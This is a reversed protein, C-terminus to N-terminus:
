QQCGIKQMKGQDIKYEQDDVLFSVQCSGDNWLILKITFARKYKVALEAQLQRLAINLCFPVFLPNTDNM